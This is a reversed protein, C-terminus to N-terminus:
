SYRGSQPSWAGICRVIEREWSFCILTMWSRLAYAWALVLGELRRPSVEDNYKM